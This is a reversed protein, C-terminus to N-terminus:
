SHANKHCTVILMKHGENDTPENWDDVIWDNTTGGKTLGHTGGENFYTITNRLIPDYHDEQLFQGTRDLIRKSQGESKPDTKICEFGTGLDLPDTEAGFPVTM